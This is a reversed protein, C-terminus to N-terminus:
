RTRPDTTPTRGPHSGTSERPSSTSSTPPTIAHAPAIGSGTIRQLDALNQDLLNPPPSPSPEPGGRQAERRMADRVADDVAEELPPQAPDRQRLPRATALFQDREAPTPPRNREAVIAARAGPPNQMIGDPGRHNEFLVQGNRDVVYIDDVYGQSELAHAADPVRRYAHDHHGPQVWRGTGTDDRAQQYRNAVGLLSNAENTAVYVVAVRYGADRFGDVWQKAADESQLPASAVVDYQSEGARLHDLCRRRLDPPLSEDVIRNGEIGHARM